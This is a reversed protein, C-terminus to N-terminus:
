AKGAFRNIKDLLKEGESKREERLDALFPKLERMTHPRYGPGQCCGDFYIGNLHLQRAVEWAEDDKKRPPKFHVGMRIMGQGCLPCKSTDKLMIRCDFCVTHYRYNLFKCM